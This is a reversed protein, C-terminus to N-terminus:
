SFIGFLEEGARNIRVFGLNEADKVFIMHPINEVIQQLFNGAKGVAEEARKRETIDAIVIRAESSNGDGDLVAIGDLQVHIPSGESHKILRMEWTHKVPTDFVERLKLYLTNADEKCVFGALPKGILSVRELGMLSTATLNSELIFGQNDLTLYAVPAFDYLDSLGIGRNVLNDSPKACSKTGANETEIRHVHLEHVLKQIEEASLTSTDPLDVSKSQFSAQAHSLLDTMDDVKPESPKDQRTKDQRTKDQRTACSSM